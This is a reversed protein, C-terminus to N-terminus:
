KKKFFTAGELALLKRKIEIGGSYGGVGRAGVIRHCPVVIPIPNAGVAQGVARASNPRGISEALQRYTITEGWKIKQLQNWVAMQFETGWLFVPRLNALSSTSSYNELISPIEDCSNGELIDFREAINKRVVTSNRFAIAYVERERGFATIELGAITSVYEFITDIL